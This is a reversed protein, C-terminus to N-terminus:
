VEDITIRAIHNMGKNRYSESLHCKNAVESRKMHMNGM